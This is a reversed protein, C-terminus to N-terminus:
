RRAFLPAIFDAWFLYMGIFTVMAGGAVFLGVRPGHWFLGFALVLLGIPVMAVSIAFLLTTRVYGM